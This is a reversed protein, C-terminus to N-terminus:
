PSGGSAAPASVLGANPNAGNEPAGEGQPDLLWAGRQEATRIADTRRDGRRRMEAATRKGGSRLLGALRLSLASVRPHRTRTRKALRKLARSLRKSRHKIASPRRVSMGFAVGRVLSRMALRGLLWPRREPVPPTHALEEVVAALIETAPREPGHPRVFEQVFRANAENAKRPDALVAALMSAHEDFDTSELVFGGHEPRLHRFHLTGEHSESFEPARLTLVPRGIVAAEIMASTNIGVVAAAHYLSDFYDTRAEPSISNPIRRPWVTTQPDADHFREWRGAREPHPRILIGVDSSGLSDNDRVRRVWRAVFAEEVRERAINSTSGVFLVIARDPLLGVKACFEERSTSPTRGFWRDFPQAGTVVVREAPVDHLEVAEKLQARNWVVVRDPLIKIHGKNTLNDWSPICAANPIGLKRASKVLDTQPSAGTTLPSVLVVDPDVSRIFSEIRESSPILGEAAVLGRVLLRAQWPRLRWLAAFPRAFPGRGLARERARNRLFSTRAFAPDLYRVYDLAARLGGAAMAFDGGRRPARGLDVPHPSFQDLIELSEPYLHPLTFTLVVEHGRAQLEAITSDFYRLHLPTNLNLLVRM